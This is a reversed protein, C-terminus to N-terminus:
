RWALLGLGVVCGAVFFAGSCCAMIMRWDGPALGVRSLPSQFDRTFIDLRSRAHQNRVIVSRERWLAVAVGAGMTILGFIFLALPCLLVKPFTGDKWTAGVFTLAALAAGANGIFLGKITQSFLGDAVEIRSQIFAEAREEDREEFQRARDDEEKTM